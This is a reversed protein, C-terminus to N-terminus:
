RMNSSSFDASTLVGGRRGVRFRPSTLAEEATCGAKLRNHLTQIPLGVDRAWQAMCKTEGNFTLNRNTRANQAQTTPTAWRCNKPAYDGNVDIRDISHEPSPRPGMDHKFAAFDNWRECVRIGRGGYNGYKPNTTTRCRDRMCCWIRYIDDKCGGHTTKAAAVLMPRRCGCSTSEGRRLRGGTVDGVNGCECRCEWLAQGHRDRGNLRLVTWGGFTRGAVDVLISM